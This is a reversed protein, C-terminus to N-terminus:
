QIAMRGLRCISLSRGQAFCKFVSFCAKLEVPYNLHLLFSIGIQERILCIKKKRFSLWQLSVAGMKYNYQLLSSNCLDQRRAYRCALTLREFVTVKAPTFAQRYFNRRFNPVTGNKGNKDELTPKMQMFNQGRVNNNKIYSQLSIFLMHVSVCVLKFYQLCGSIFAKNGSIFISNIVKHIEGKEVKKKRFRSLPRQMKINAKFVKVNNYQM